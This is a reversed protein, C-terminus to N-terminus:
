GFSSILLYAISRTEQRFCFIDLTGIEDAREQLKSAAGTDQVKSKALQFKQAGKRSAHSALAQTRKGCYRSMTFM